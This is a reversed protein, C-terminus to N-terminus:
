LVTKCHVTVDASILAVIATLSFETVRLTVLYWDTCSIHLFSHCQLQNRQCHM